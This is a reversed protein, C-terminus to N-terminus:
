VKFGGPPTIVRHIPADVHDADMSETATIVNMHNDYTSLPGISSANTDLAGPYIVSNDGNVTIGRIFEVVTYFSRAGNSEVTFMHKVSEVHALIYVTSKSKAAGSSFNNKPNVLGYEFRINSGVSIYETSGTMVINGSLLKHTDFHWEMNLQVWPRIHDPSFAPQPGESKPFQRVVTIKPRFGERSFAVPDWGQCKQAILGNAEKFEAFDPRVEIFNFKDEWNTGMNVSVVSDSDIDHKRVYVFRSRLEEVGEEIDKGQADKEINWRYSFPFIRNYLALRPRGKSTWEMDTILECLANNISSVMVQWFSNEGAMVFPDFFTYSENTPAYNDYGVLKGSRLVILNSLDVQTETNDKVTIGEEQTSTSFNFFNAVEQPLAFRYIAKGIRGIGKSEENILDNRKQIDESNLSFIHIFFNLLQNVEVSYPAGYQSDALKELMLAFTNGWTKPENSGAIHPDMYIKNAFIYGWDAGDVTYTTMRAGNEGVSTTVRVSEIKGFMKVHKRSASSLVSQTIPEDSMMIVCWSGAVIESVWNRTPALVFSFRGIPNNKSKSTNIAICSVTSIIIENTADILSEQMGESGGRSAYNWIKIAAHPTSIKFNKGDKAM